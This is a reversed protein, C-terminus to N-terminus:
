IDIRKRTRRSVYWCPQYGFHPFLSYVCTQMQPQGNMFETKGDKQRVAYYPDIQVSGFAESSASAKYKLLGYDGAYVLALLGLCVLVGRKM